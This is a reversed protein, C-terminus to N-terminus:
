CVGSGLIGHPDFAVRIRGHLAVVSPELRLRGARRGRFPVARGGARCAAQHVAAADQVTALWRQAGGWDACWRGAIDPVPVSPPLSLRWLTEGEGLAFFPQTHERLSQWFAPGDSVTEGGMAQAAAQLAVSTGSLRVYLVGDLWAAASLPLPRAAWVACQALADAQSCDHRLTIEHPPRPLVKLSVELLLGLSGQSGVMLRSLDFGAVNKMVQGGFNLVQGQGNVMRVGLVFDRVSGSWPRRPGSFGCAVMGGLTAGDGFYPPECALMQGSEALTAEIEALPTGARATLVLESPQYSVIGRYGCTDLTEGQATGTYFAKSGSGRITLRRREAVANRIAEVLPKEM